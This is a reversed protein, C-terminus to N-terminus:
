PLTWYNYPGTTLPAADCSPVQADAKGYYKAIEQFDLLQVRFGLNKKHNLDACIGNPIAALQADTKSYAAALAQFDLLQVRLGLNKKGNIDGRCQYQYCWCNPRGWAVWDAYESAHAIGSILCEPETFLVFSMDESRGTQDTLPTWKWQGTPDLEWAAADDNKGM